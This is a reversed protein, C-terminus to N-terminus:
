SRIYQGGYWLFHLARLASICHQGWHHVFSWKMQWLADEVAEDTALKMKEFEIKLDRYIDAFDDVLWGQTAENETEAAYPDFVEWYFANQGLTSILAKNKNIFFEDNTKNFNSEASSYKLEIQELKQGTSYLDILIPYVQRYFEEVSINDTEILSIFQHAVKLFNRTSDKQQFSQIEISFTGSMKTNHM